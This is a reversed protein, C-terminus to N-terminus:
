IEMARFFITTGTSSHQSIVLIKKGTSNEIWTERGTLGTFSSDDFRFKYKALIREIKAEVVGSDESPVRGFKSIENAAKLVNSKAEVIEERIIKRLESKKM